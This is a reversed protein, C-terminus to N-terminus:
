LSTLVQPFNFKDKLAPSLPFPYFTYNIKELQKSTMTKSAVKAEGDWNVFVVGYIVGVTRSLEM